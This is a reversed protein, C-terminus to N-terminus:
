DYTIFILRKTAKKISRIDISNGPAIMLKKMFSCGSPIIITNEKIKEKRSFLSISPPCLRPLLISLNSTILCLSWDVGDM